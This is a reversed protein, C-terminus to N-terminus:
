VSLIKVTKDLFKRLEKAFPEAAENPLVFSGYRVGYGGWGKKGRYKEVFKKVTAFAAKENGITTPYPISDADWKVTSNASGKEYVYIAVCKKKKCANWYANETRLTKQNRRGKYYDM